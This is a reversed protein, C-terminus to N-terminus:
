NKKILAYDNLDLKSSEECIVYLLYSVLNNNIFRNKLCRSRCARVLLTTYIGSLLCFAKLLFIILLSRSAAVSTEFILKTQM